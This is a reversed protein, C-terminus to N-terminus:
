GVLSVVVALSMRCSVAHLVDADREPSWISRRIHHELDRIDAGSVRGIGGVAGVWAIDLDIAALRLGHFVEIVQRLSILIRIFHPPEEGLTPGVYAAGQVYAGHEPGSCQCTEWGVPDEGVPKGLGSYSTRWGGAGWCDFVRPLRLSVVICSCDLRKHRWPIASTGPRNM